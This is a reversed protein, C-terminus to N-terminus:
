GHMVHDIRHTVKLVLDLLELECNSLSVYLYLSHFRSENSQITFERPKSVDLLVDVILFAEEANGFALSTLKLSVDHCDTLRNPFIRLLMILFM